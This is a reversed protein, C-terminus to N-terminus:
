RVRRKDDYMAADAVRIAIRGDLDGDNVTAAGISVRVLTPVGPPRPPHDLFSRRLRQELHRAQQADTDPLVVLFEDGGYRGVRDSVRIHRHLHSTVAILAEDGAGHGWTDNIRKFDDVDIMMVSVSQQARQARRIERSLEVEIGHRNLAGCLQDHYSLKRLDRKERAARLRTTLRAVLEDIDVPKALFDDAGGDFGRVRRDVEAMASILLVPLDRTEPSARLRATLAYGDEGPMNVDTIVADVESSGLREFAETADAATLVEYGSLRLLKALGTRSADEDDVVLVRTPAREHRRPLPVAMPSLIAIM